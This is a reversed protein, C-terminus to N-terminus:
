SKSFEAVALKVEVSDRPLAERPPNRRSLPTVRVTVALKFMPVQLPVTPMEAVDAVRKGPRLKLAAMAEFGPTVSGASVPVKVIPDVDPASKWSVTGEVALM